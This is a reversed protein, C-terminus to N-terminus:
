IAACLSRKRVQADVAAALQRLEERDAKGVVMERLAALGASASEPRPRKASEPRPKASEPRALEALVPPVVPGASSIPAPAVAADPEPAIELAAVKFALDDLPAREAKSASLDDVRKLQALPYCTSPRM